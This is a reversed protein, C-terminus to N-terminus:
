ACRGCGSVLNDGQDITGPSFGPGGPDTAQTVLSRGARAISAKDRQAM